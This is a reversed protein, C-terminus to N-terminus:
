RAKRGDRNFGQKSIPGTNRHKVLYLAQARLEKETKPKSEIHAFSTDWKALDISVIARGLSDYAKILPTYAKRLNRWLEAFNVSPTIAPGPYPETDIWWEDEFVPGSM